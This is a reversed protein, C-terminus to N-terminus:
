NLAQITKILEGVDFYEPLVTGLESQLAAWEQRRIQALINLQLLKEFLLKHSESSNGDGVIKERIRFLLEVFQEYELGYEKELDRRIQAALAPSGGGTSVTILFKGRRVKAPVQFSCSRPADIANVLVGKEEAEEIIQKQVARVNTAAFVLFAGELDGVEYPRAFWEIKGQDVLTQIVHNVKPSVVVVKAGSTLLAKIKRGAVGGGGVILCLRNHIDLNVPYLNM